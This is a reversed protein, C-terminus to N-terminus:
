IHARTTALDCYDIFSLQEEQILLLPFIKKALDIHLSVHFQAVAVSNPCAVLQAVTLLGPGLTIFGKEHEAWSLSFNVSRM